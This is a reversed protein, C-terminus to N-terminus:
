PARKTIEEFLGRGALIKFVATATWGQNKQPPQELRNPKGDVIGDIIKTNVRIRGDADGRFFEPFGGVKACARLVRDELVKAEEEFGARRMGEAVVATDMPWSSGNHYSGPRFRPATTSKTRIGEGGLLDKEMLRAVLKQRLPALADGDLIGSTLLHGPSSAVIKLPRGKEGEGQDFTLALAFTSLEPLWMEDLVQAKLKAARTRLEAAHEGGLLDATALLADYAYGQVAIPAYPKEFDVLKGHEDYYSDGSDEWVQNPIGDPNARRVTLYGTDPNETIFGGGKDMRSLVWDSARAVAERITIEDGALDTFRRDLIEPGHHTVHLAVLNVFQPTSDVAGYYPLDWHKALEAYLPDTPPRAEHIIRGPEEEARANYRVGQLEALALITAEGVRPFRADLDMAMRISDRGFLCNFLSDKGASAALAGNTGLDALHDVNGLAALTRGLARLSVGLTPDSSRSTQVSKTRYRGVPPTDITRAADRAGHGAHPVREPAALAKTRTRTERELVPSEREIGHEAGRNASRTVARRASVSM